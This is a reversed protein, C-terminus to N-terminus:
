RGGCIGEISGSSDILLDVRDLGIPDRSPMYLPIYKKRPKSYNYNVRTKQNLFRNLLTQWPIKKEQIHKIIENAECPIEGQSKEVLTKTQILIENLSEREASSGLSELLCNCGQESPEDPLQNYIEEASLGKYQNDLLAEPPAQLGYSVLLLNLAYDCAINWKMPIRHGRRDIHKLAIHMVEHFLIFQREPETKSLFYQENILLDIGNNAATPVEDTIHINLRLLLHAYFSARKFSLMKIKSKSLVEKIM